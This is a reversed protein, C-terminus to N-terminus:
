KITWTNPGQLLTDLDPAGKAEVHKEVQATVGDEYTPRDEQYFVGFPRPLGGEVRPDDFFRVLLSAKVRDHMDHVWIDSEDVDAVNVVKPTFGDLVIAKDKEKGFILPQGHEVFITNDPKSDKETFPFFAGDNFINCNQYIEVLSTGKHKSAELLVPRMHKPDRDM